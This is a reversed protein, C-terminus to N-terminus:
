RLPDCLDAVGESDIAIFSRNEDEEKECEPCLGAITIHGGMMELESAPIPCEIQEGCLGCKGVVYVDHDTDPHNENGSM